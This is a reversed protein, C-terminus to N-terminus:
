HKTKTSNLNRNTIEKLGKVAGTSPMVKKQHLVKIENTKKIGGSVGAGRLVLGMKRQHLYTGALEYLQEAM